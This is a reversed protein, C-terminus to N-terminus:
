GIDQASTSFLSLSFNPQVMLKLNGLRSNRQTNVFRNMDHIANAQSRLRIEPQLGSIMVGTQRRMRGHYRYYGKIKFDM